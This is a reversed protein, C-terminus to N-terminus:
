EGSGFFSVGAFKADLGTGIENFSGGTKAGAARRHIINREHTSQHFWVTEADFGGTTNTQESVELFHHIGAGRANTGAIADFNQLFSGTSIFLKTGNGASSCITM